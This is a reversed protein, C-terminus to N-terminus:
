LRVAFVGWAEGYLNRIYDIPNVEANTSPKVAASIAGSSLCEDVVGTQCVTMLKDSPKETPRGRRNIPLAAQAACHSPLVRLRISLPGM